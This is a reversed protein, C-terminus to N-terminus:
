VYKSVMTLLEEKNIPKTIYDDCGTKDIQVKDEDRAFATQVIIPITKNQRRIEEIAEFGSVVPMRLDMLILDLEPNEQFKEIAEKGNKAWVLNALTKRFISKLYIFNSEVDEAVLIKKDRLNVENVSDRNVPITYIDPEVIRVPLTFYFESGRNKVSKCWIKGGLLEVYAKSLHLGLGAGEFQKIYSDGKHHFRNFINDLKEKPIGIGTDLVHFTICHSHIPDEITSLSYGFEISGSETYKVANRLLSDLVQRLRYPETMITFDSEKAARKLYLTVEKKSRENLDQDYYAFLDLLVQNIKCESYRMNVEGSEVKAVDIINDILNTLHNGSENIRATFEVQQKPTLDPDSLLESFGILSNMPTLIDNSMNALFATKLKESQEAKEKAKILEERYLVVKEDAAKRETIDIIIGSLKDAELNGSLMFHKKNGNRSEFEVEYETKERNTTLQHIISKDEVPINFLHDLNTNLLEEPTNYELMNLMTNNVFSINGKIDSIFVGMLASDVLEKYKIESQKLSEESEIKKELQKTLESKREEVKSHLVQNMRVLEKEEEILYLNKQIASDYTSILLNLIQAPNSRINYKKGAISIKLSKTQEKQVLLHKNELLHNIRTLLYEEKCPKIIYGDTCCELGKIVDSTESLNTLLLIPIDRLNEDTKIKKCLEHGDMEPMVIDSILMLPKCEKVMGLAEKGDMAHKVTYGFGELMHKLVEAQTLSDEAIVITNNTTSNM